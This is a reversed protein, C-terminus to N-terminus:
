CCFLCLWVGFLLLGLVLFLRLFLLALLWFLLLCCVLWVLWVSVLAYLVGVLGGLCCFCAVVLLRFAFMFLGLSFLCFSAVLGCNCVFCRLVLIMVFLGFM